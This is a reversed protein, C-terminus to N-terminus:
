QAVARYFRVNQTPTDTVQARGNPGTTVTTVQTWAAFDSTAEIRYSSNPSGELTFSFTGAALAPNSLTAAEGPGGGPPNLM